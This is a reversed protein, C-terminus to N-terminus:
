RQGGTGDQYYDEKSKGSYYPLSRGQKGPTLCFFVAVPRSSNRRPRASFGNASSRLWGLVLPPGGLLPFAGTAALATLPAWGSLWSARSAMLLLSRPLSRLRSNRCVIMRERSRQLMRGRRGTYAAAMSPPGPARHWSDPVAITTMSTAMNQFLRDSSAAPPRSTAQLRCASMCVAHAACPARLAAHSSVLTCRPADHKVM